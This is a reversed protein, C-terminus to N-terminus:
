ILLIHFDEMFDTFALPINRYLSSYVDSIEIVVLLGGKWGNNITITASFV